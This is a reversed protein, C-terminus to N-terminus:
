IPVNGRIIRDRWFCDIRRKVHKRTRVVHRHEFIVGIQTLECPEISAPRHAKHNMSPGIVKLGAVPHVYSLMEEKETWTKCM